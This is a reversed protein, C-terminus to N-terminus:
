QESRNGKAYNMVEEQEYVVQLDDYLLGPVRASGIDIKLTVSSPEEDRVRGFGRDALWKAAEIKHKINVSGEQFVGMFFDVLLKGGQTREQVLGKLQAGADEMVAPVQAGEVRLIEGGNEGLNELEDFDDDENM